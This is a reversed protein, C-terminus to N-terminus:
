PVRLLGSAGDATLTVERPFTLVGAWGAENVWDADRAEWAWGWLM